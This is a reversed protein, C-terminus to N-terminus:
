HQFLLPVCIASIPGAGIILASDGAKFNAKKVAHWGVALPEMMAGIDVPYAILSWVAM